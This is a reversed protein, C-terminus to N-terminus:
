AGNKEETLATKIELHGPYDRGIRELTKGMSRFLIDSSEDPKEELFCELFGTDNEKMRVKKKLVNGLGIVTMYSVASVASCIYDKPLRRPFLFRALRNLFRQYFRSHGSVAFGEIRKKGPFFVVRIM